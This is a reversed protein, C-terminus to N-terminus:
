GRVLGSFFLELRLWSPMTDRFKSRNWSAQLKMASLAVSVLGSHSRGPWPPPEGSWTSPEVEPFTWSRAMFFAMPTGFGTVFSPTSSDTHSCLYDVVLLALSVTNMLVVRSTRSCSLLKRVRVLLGLLHPLRPFPVTRRCSGFCYHGGNWCLGVIYHLFFHCLCCLILTSLPLVVCCM